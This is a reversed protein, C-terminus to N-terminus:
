TIVERAEFGRGKNIYGLIVNVKRNEERKWLYLKKPNYLDHLIMTSM